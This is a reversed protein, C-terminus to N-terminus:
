SPKRSDSDDKVINVIRFKYEQLPFEPKLIDIISKKKKKDVVIFGKKILSKMYNSHGGSSLGLTEMVNKNATPSFPYDQLTGEISMHSSLVKIETPTMKRPLICNILSLHVQYYDERNLELKKLLVKM